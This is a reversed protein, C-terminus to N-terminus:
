KSLGRCKERSTWGRLNRGVRQNYTPENLGGLRSSPELFVVM